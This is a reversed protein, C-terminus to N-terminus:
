NVPWLIVCAHDKAPDVVPADPDDDGHWVMEGYWTTTPRYHGNTEVSSLPSFNNGDGDSSLIVVYDDPLHDLQTRLEKVTIM